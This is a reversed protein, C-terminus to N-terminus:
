LNKKIFNSIKESVFKNGKSNFHGGYKDNVYLTEYNELNILDETLDIINIDQSLKKYFNLYYNHNKKIHELDALQPLIAIITKSNNQFNHDKINQIIKKLLNSTKEDKYFNACLNINEKIVFNYFLYKYIRLSIKFRKTLFIILGGFILYFNRKFNKLFFVIFPFKLIEKLFKESYFYDKKNIDNLYDKYNLYDKNKIVPNKELILKNDKISFKPKFGLLNGYELYHKWFSHIRLITEPVFAYIVIKNKYNHRKSLIFAQDIGYNGVGYNSISKNLLASLFYQWTENDNVQRCFAFSDGYSLIEYNNNKNNNNKRSGDFDIFFKTQTSYTKEFGQTNEKRIWGLDPDYSNKYFKLLKNNDIKPYQDSYDIIWQFRNKSIKILIFLLIELLIYYFILQIM